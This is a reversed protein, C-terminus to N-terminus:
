QQREQQAKRQKIKRLGWLVTTHDMGWHRAIQPLSWGRKHLAHFVEWRAHSVRHVRTRSMLQEYTLGNALAIRSVLGKFSFPETEHVPEPYEVRASYSMRIM